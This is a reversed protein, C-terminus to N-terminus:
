GSLIFYIVLVVLAVLCIWASIWLLKAIGHVRASINKMQLIYMGYVHFFGGAVIVLFSYGGLWTGWKAGLGFGVIAAGLAASSVALKSINETKM